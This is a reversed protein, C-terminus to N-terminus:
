HPRPKEVAGGFLLGGDTTLDARWATLAEIVPHGAPLEERAITLAKDYADIAFLIRGARHHLQALRVLTPRLSRHMAGLRERRLALCRELEARAAEDDGSEELLVALNHIASECLERARAEGEGELTAIVRRLDVVLPGTDAGDERYTAQNYVTELTALATPGLARERHERARALHQAAARRDGRRGCSLGLQNEATGAAAFDKAGEAVSAWTALAQELPGEEGIRESISAVLALAAVESPESGAGRGKVRAACRRAETLAEALEGDALLSAALAYSPPGLELSGEGFAREGERLALRLAARGAAADGRDFLLTASDQVAREFRRRAFPRRLAAVLNEFLKM